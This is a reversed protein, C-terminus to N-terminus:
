KGALWSTMFVRADLLDIITDSDELNCDPNYAGEGSATEYAAAFIAFDELDTDFDGDLDGNPAPV